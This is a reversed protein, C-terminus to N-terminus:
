RHDRCHVFGDGSGTIWTSMRDFKDTDPDYITCRDPGKSESAVVVSQLRITETGERFQGDGAASEIKSVDGTM